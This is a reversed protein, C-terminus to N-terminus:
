SKKIHNEVNNKCEIVNAYSFSNEQNERCIGRSYEASSNIQVCTTCRNSKRERETWRFRIIVPWHSFQMSVYVSTYSQDLAVHPAAGLKIPVWDTSHSFRKNRLLKPKHTIWTVFQTLSAAECSRERAKNLVSSSNRNSGGCWTSM